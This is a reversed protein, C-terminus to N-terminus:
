INKMADLRELYPDREKGSPRGGGGGIVPMKTRRRQSRQTMDIKENKGRVYGDNGAKEINADYDKLRILQAFDDKKLQFDKARAILGEAGYLWEVFERVDEPKYGAEKIAADLEADEQATLEDVKSEFDKDAQERERRAQRTQQYHEKTKPNGEILDIVMEPENELLWEGLDFDTGDDNKGTALGTIIPAAYPDRSLMENFQKREEDRQDMLDYDSSIQGSVAEDDDINLEPNRTRLRELLQQRRTREEKTAEKAM